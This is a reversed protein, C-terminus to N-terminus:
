AVQVEDFGATAVTLLVHPITLPNVGPVVVILAAMPDAFADAMSVTVLAVIAAIETVGTPCVMAGPEFKCNVAVPDNLSELV